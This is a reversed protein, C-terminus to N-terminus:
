YPRHGLIPPLSVPFSLFRRKLAITIIKLFTLFLIQGKPRPYTYLHKIFFNSFHLTFTGMYLPSIGPPFYRVIVNFLFFGIKLCLM